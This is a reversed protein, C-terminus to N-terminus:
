GQAGPQMCLARVHGHDAAFCALAPFIGDVTLPGKDSLGVGPSGRNLPKHSERIASGLALLTPRAQLPRRSPLHPGTCPSSQLVLPGAPGQVRSLRHHPGWPSCARLLAETCVQPLVAQPDQLGVVLTVDDQVHPVEPIPRGRLHQCKVTGHGPSRRAEWPGMGPSTRTQGHGSTGAARPMIHRTGVEDLHGM